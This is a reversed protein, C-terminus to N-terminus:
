LQFDDSDFVPLMMRNGPYSEHIVPLNLFNAPSKPSVLFGYLAVLGGYNWYCCLNMLIFVVIICLIGCDHINYSLLIVLYVSQFYLTM